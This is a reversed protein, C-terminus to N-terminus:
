LPPLSLCFGVQTLVQQLHKREVAGYRRRFRGEAVTRVQGCHFFTDRDLNAVGQPVCVRGPLKKYVSTGPVVMFLGSENAEDRSVVLCPRHGGQEHGQTPDLDVLWVEGQRPEPM